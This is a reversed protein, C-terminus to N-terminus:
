SGSEIKALRDRLIRGVEGVYPERMCGGHDGDVEDVDLTGVFQRWAECARPAYTDRAKVFLMAGPWPEPRYALMAEGLTRAVAEPTRWVDPEFELPVPPRVRNAVFRGAMRARDGWGAERFRRVREANRENLEPPVAFLQAEVVFLLPVDHGAAALRRAVEYAVVGGLSHGGVIMPRGLFPDLLGIYSDAMAEITAEPTGSGGMGPAEIAVVPRRSGLHFALNGAAFVSGVGDHVWVLPTLDGDPQLHVLVPQGDSPAQALAVRSDVARALSALSADDLLDGQTLRVGLTEEVALTMEVAQLSDGGLVFFDDAPAIRGDLDLMRVWIAAIASETPSLTVEEQRQRVAAAGVGLMEAMRLRPVKGLATPIEDVFFVQRPVKYASIRAIAHDRVQDITLAPDARVVAAAVDEGRSAHPVPFVVADAVGPHERLAAEVEFPSVKLTGRNIQEKLRGTIALYGDADLYGLDGTRFWGDVMSEANAEPDDLYGEEIDAARVQVEGQQGAALAQGHEDAIRLEMTPKGVTHEKGPTLTQDYASIMAVETMGYGTIVTAGFVRKLELAMAVPLATGSSFILQLRCRAATEPDRAAAKLLGSHILPNGVYTTVGHQALLALLHGPDLSEPFVVSDGGACSNLVTGWGTATHIPALNLAVGPESGNIGFFLNRRVYGHRRPILRPRSTTGSTSTVMCLDDPGPPDALEEGNWDAPIVLAGTPGGPDPTLVINMLGLERIVDPAASAVGALTVVARAKTRAFLQRMEAAPTEASVAVATCACLTGIIAVAGAADIPNVVVAVADGRKLGERRLQWGVAELHRTLEGMPMSARGPAVLSTVDPGQRARERLLDRVTLTEVLTTTV